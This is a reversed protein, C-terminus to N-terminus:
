IVPKACFPEEDEEDEEEDAVDEEVPPNDEVVFIDEEIVEVVAEAVPDDVDVDVVPVFDLPSEVPVEDPM